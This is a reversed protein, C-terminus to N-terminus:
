AHVARKLERRATWALWGHLSWREPKRHLEEFARSMTLALAEDLAADTPQRGGESLIEFIVNRVGALRTEAVRDFTARDGALARDLLAREEELAHRAQQMGASQRMGRKRRWDADGRLGSQLKALEKQLDDFVQRILTRVFPARNRSAALPRNMVLLRVHSAYEERRAQKELVIELQVLDSQIHQLRKEIRAIQRRLLQLDAPTLEFGRPIIKIDMTTAM